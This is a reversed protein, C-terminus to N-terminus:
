RRGSKRVTPNLRDIDAQVQERGREYVIERGMVTGAYARGNRTPTLECKVSHIGEGLVVKRVVRDDPLMTIVIECAAGAAALNEAIEVQHAAALALARKPDADYIVLKYGAKVLNGAMPTGMAGIGIFGIKGSISTM